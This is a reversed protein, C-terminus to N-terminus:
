FSASLTALAPQALRHQLLGDCPGQSVSGGPHRTSLLHYTDQIPITFSSTIGGRFNNLFYSMPHPLMLSRTARTCQQFPQQFPLLLMLSKTNPYKIKKQHTMKKDRKYIM